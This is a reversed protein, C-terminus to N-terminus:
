GKSQVNELTQRVCVQVTCAGICGLSLCCCFQSALVAFCYLLLHMNFAHLGRSEPLMDNAIPVEFLTFVSSKEIRGDWGVRHLHGTQMCVVLQNGVCLLSHFLFPRGSLLLLLLSPFSLSSFPSSSPSSPPLPHPLFSLPPPLFSDKM